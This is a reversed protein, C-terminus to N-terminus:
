VKFEAFVPFHDSPYIGERSSKDLRINLNTIDKSTLIWDIRSGGNHSNDIGDFKHFSSTEQIKLDIWPDKLDLKSLVENRVQGTPSENFDGMIILPLKNSNIKTVEKILVKIQELRTEGLVHDLHCNVVLFDKDFAKVKAWTCLRPFASKFSKTGAEHPTSSLWIDGSELVTVVNLNIYLCPYMREEIWERHSSILTLDKLSEEYQLLQPQRGEQSGLIHPAFENVLDSLIPM